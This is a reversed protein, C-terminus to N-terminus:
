SIEILINKLNIHNQIAGRQNVIDIWRLDALGLPADRQDVTSYYITGFYIM